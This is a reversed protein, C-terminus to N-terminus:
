RYSDGNINITIDPALNPDDLLALLRQQARDPTPSPLSLVYEIAVVMEPSLKVESLNAQGTMVDWFSRSLLNKRGELKKLRAKVRNFNSRGLAM